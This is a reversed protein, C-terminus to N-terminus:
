LELAVTRDWAAWAGPATCAMAGAAAAYRGARALRVADIRALAARDQLGLRWLAVLLAAVFADGAGITSVVPVAPAAVSVTVRRTMLTAGAGGRTVVVLVPGLDLLAGPKHRAVGFYDSEEQSVKLLAVDRVTQRLVATLRDRDPWLPLRVNPDFSTILGRARATAYFAQMLRVGRPRCLVVGGGHAMVVGDWVAPALADQGVAASATGDWYLRFGGPGGAAREVVSLTTPRTADAVVHTTDVGQAALRDRLWRGIQDDGVRGVFRSGLGLRAVGVAVNAPAGGPSFGGGMPDSGARSLAVDALVEGVTLVIPSSPPSAGDAAGAM